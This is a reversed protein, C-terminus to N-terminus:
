LAEFTPRSPYVGLTDRCALLPTTGVPVLGDVGSAVQWQVFSRLASYDVSGDANFPTILATFTGTFTM